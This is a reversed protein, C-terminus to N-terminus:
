RDSTLATHGGVIRKVLGDHQSYLHHDFLHAIYFKEPWIAGRHPGPLYYRLGYIPSIKRMSHSANFEKIALREGTFDSYAFGMIDDFYCYVRPLLVSCDAELLKFAGM